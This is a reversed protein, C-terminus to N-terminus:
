GTGGAGQMFGRAKCVGVAMCGGPARCVAAAMYDGAGAVGCLWVLGEEVAARGAGGLAMCVTCVGPQCRSSALPPQAAAQRPCLPSLLVAPHCRMPLQAPGEYGQPPALLASRGGTSSQVAGVPAVPTARACIPGSRHRPSSRCVAAPLLSPAAVLAGVAVCCRCVARTRLPPRQPRRWSRRRGHADGHGFSCYWPLTHAASPESPAFSARRACSALVAQQRSMWCNRGAWRQPAAPAVGCASATGCGACPRRGGHSPAAPSQMSHSGQPTLRPPCLWVAEAQRGAQRSSCKLPEKRAGSGPACASTGRDGCALSQAATATPPLLACTCFRQQWQQM